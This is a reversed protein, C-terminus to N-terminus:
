KQLRRTHLLATMLFKLHLFHTARITLWTHISVTFSIVCQSAISCKLALLELKGPSSHYDKEAEQPM